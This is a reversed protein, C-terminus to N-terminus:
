VNEDGLIIIYLDWFIILRNSWKEVAIRGCFKFIILFRVIILEITILRTGLLLISGRASGESPLMKDM